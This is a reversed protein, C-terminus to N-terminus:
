RWWSWGLGGRIKSSPIIYHVEHM